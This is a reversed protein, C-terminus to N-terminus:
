ESICYLTFIIHISTKMIARNYTWPRYYHGWSPHLPGLSSMDCPSQSFGNMSVKILWSFLYWWYSIKKNSFLVTCMISFCPMIVPGNHFFQAKIFLKSNQILNNWLSGAMIDRKEMNSVTINKMIFLCKPWLEFLQNIILWLLEKKEM